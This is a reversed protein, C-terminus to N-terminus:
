RGTRTFKTPRFCEPQRRLAEFRKLNGSRTRGISRGQGHLKNGINLVTTTDHKFSCRGNMGPFLLPLPYSQHHSHPSM